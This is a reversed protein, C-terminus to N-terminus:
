RTIQIVPVGKKFLVANYAFWLVSDACWNEWDENKIEYHANLQEDSHKHLQRTINVWIRKLEEKSCKEASKIADHIEANSTIVQYEHFRSAILGCWVAVNKKKSPKGLIALGQDKAEQPTLLTTTNVPFVEFKVEGNTKSGSVVLMTNDANM